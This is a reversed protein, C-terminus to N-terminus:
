LFYMYHEVSTYAVFLGFKNVNSIVYICITVYRLFALAMLIGYVVSLLM